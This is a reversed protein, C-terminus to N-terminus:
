IAAASFEPAHLQKPTTAPARLSLADVVWDLNQNGFWTARSGVQMAQPGCGPTSATRASPASAVATLAGSSYLSLLPITAICTSNETEKM